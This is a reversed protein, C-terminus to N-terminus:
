LTCHCTENVYFPPKHSCFLVVDIKGWMHVSNPSEKFCLYQRTFFFSEWSNLSRKQLKYRFPTTKSVFLLANGHHKLILNAPPVM